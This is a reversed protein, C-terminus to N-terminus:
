QLEWCWKDPYDYQGLWYNREQIRKWDEPKWQFDYITYALLVSLEEGPQLVPNLSPDENVSVFVDLAIGNSYGETELYLQTLDAKAEEEGENKLLVEVIYYYGEESMEKDVYADKAEAFSIWQQTTVKMSINEAVKETDGFVITHIADKPYKQNVQYVRIGWFLLLIVILVGVIIRKM